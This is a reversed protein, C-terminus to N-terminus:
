KKKMEYEIEYEDGDIIVTIDGYVDTRYFDIHLNELRGITEDHPHLYFNDYGCSIVAVEPDCKELFKKTSSTSSGHHGVKLIDCDIDAKEALLRKEATSEADGMFLFETEGIEARIVVSRNNEDEIDPYYGLIEIDFEGINITMGINATYVTGGNQSIYVAASNAAAAGEPGDIIHPIILDGVEFEKLLKEAGGVHDNHIHTFILMDIKKVGYRRLKKALSKASDPPGTDILATSRNSCILISDGQGVDIFRVFDDDASLRPSLGFYHFLDNWNPVNVGDGISLLLILFACVTVIARIAGKKTDSKM